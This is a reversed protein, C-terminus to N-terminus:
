IVLFVGLAILMLGLLGDRFARGWVEPSEEWDARLGRRVLVKGRLVSQLAINILRLGM